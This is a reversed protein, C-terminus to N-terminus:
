SGSLRGLLKSTTVVTLSRQISARDVSQGGMVWSAFYGLLSDSALKTCFMPDSESTHAQNIYDSKQTHM